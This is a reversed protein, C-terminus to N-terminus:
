APTLSQENLLPAGALYRRLNELFLEYNRHNCGDGAFSNHPTLVVRPHDWLPSDAPPPEPTVADLVATEPRGRELAALLADQDVLSGRAVNVLVSRPKMAALFAADVLHHTESTAPAAVVVVDCRGVVGPVDSPAVM